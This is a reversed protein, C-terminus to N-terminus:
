SGDALVERTIERARDSRNDVPNISGAAAPIAQCTGGHAPNALGV